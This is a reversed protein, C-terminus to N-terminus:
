RYDFRGRKSKRGKKENLKLLRKQAMKVQRESLELKEAIEEVDEVGDEMLKEVKDQRLRDRASKPDVPLDSLEWEVTDETNITIVRTKAEETKLHRPKQFSLAFAWREDSKYEDIRQLQMECELSITKLMSGYQGGSKRDHHLLLISRNEKVLQLLYNMVEPLLDESAKGELMGPPALTFLSDLIVLKPDYVEIQDRLYARDEKTALSLAPKGERYNWKDNLLVLNNNVPGLRRVWSKILGPDLEADVYLVKCPEPVTWDMLDDGTACAYGISLALRTKAHGPPSHLMSVGPFVLVPKLIRPVDDPTESTLLEGMTLAHGKATRVRRAKIIRRKLKELRPKNGDARILLDNWDPYKKTRKNRKGLPKAIRTKYGQRSLRTALSRAAKGGGKGLDRAIIVESNKKYPKPLSALAEMSETGLTAIAPLGGTIQSASLATEIGEAIILPKDPDFKGLQVFGGKAVGYTRRAKQNSSWRKKTGKDNLAIIQVASAGREPHWVPFVAIPFRETVEEILGTRKDIKKVPAGKPILYSNNPVIRIGRNKLYTKPKKGSRKAARRIYTAQKIRRQIQKELAEQWAKGGITKLDKSSPWVKKEKLWSIIDEDHRGKKTSHCHVLIKGSTGVDVAIGDSSKCIPCPHRSGAFMMEDPSGRSSELEAIIANLFQYADPPSKKM